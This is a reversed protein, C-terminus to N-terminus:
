LDELEKTKSDISESIMAEYKTTLKQIREKSKDADDEALEKAKKEADIKKNADRRINRVVVRQAEGIKKVQGVLQQRREGSLPPVPLRIIKGDSQPTIGVDSSQIAKEIDKVTSPDFPKVVLLAPEPATVTALERLEMTSGYSVVEVKLHEVLAPSARGTRVGRLEKRLHEVSKEMADECEFEIEDVPM